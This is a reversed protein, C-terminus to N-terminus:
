YCCYFRDSLHMDQIQERLQRHEETDEEDDHDILVTLTGSVPINTHVNRVRGDVVEILVVSELLEKRTECLVDRCIDRLALSLIDPAGWTRDLHQAYDILVRSVMHKRVMDDTLAITHEEDLLALLRQLQNEHDAWERLTEQQRAASANTDNSVTDSREQGEKLWPGM